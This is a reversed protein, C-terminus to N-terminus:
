GKNAKYFEEMHKALLEVSEVPCANYISARMGGVFRHGKLGLMKKAKAEAIFKEELEPTPLNWTVNMISRDDKNVVSGKYFEPYADFIDYILKAKKQNRAQVVDLGGEKIIWKLTRGVVFVPLCPPTNFMSGADVHTKYKLITSINQKAKAEMWAKKIVVMVVGAPGLNKQAGAYILNYKKFDRKVALMDSSMDAILPVSGVDPDTKWETGFITNNTTIHVYDADGSFKINKPLQNFNTPKSSAVEIANGLIKAEKFAKSAWEGTNVYDAKNQLFNIPVMAFQMSAGGGLFIVAYEEPSLGMISLADAQAEAVVKDFAKDRHSIEMISVGINAFDMVADRTEEIVSLPLVAPGAFFNHARAM